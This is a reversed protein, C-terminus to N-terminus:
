TQWQNNLRELERLTLEPNEDRLLPLQARTRHLQQLDIETTLLKEEFNPGLLISEGQPNFVSSGGYFNLGDEFGVRNVYAVFVTFLSAYARNVQEVWRQSVFQPQTDLGHGPSSSCHLLIDAGDLWLLYPPSIHWFDECILLGIRGWRTNFARFRDGAALFRAEDFMGYTPLYVKHHVHIIKGGSLYASAVLFRHRLDEEIFGVVLDMEWSSELLPALLPSEPRAPIATQSVLDQLAYGTLSLEPFCLLEVEKSSAEEIFDLHKDLNSHPNGFETKIQALGLKLYRETNKSPTM